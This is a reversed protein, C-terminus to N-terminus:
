CGDRYGGDELFEELSIKGDKPNKDHELMTRDLEFKHMHAYSHPHYFATFEKADLYGNKDQDAEVFKKEEEDVQQLLFIYHAM